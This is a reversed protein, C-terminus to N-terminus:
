IKWIGMGIIQYHKKRTSVFRIISNTTQIFKLERENMHHPSSNLNGTPILFPFSWCCVFFFQPTLPSGTLTSQQFVFATIVWKSISVCVLAVCRNPWHKPQNLESFYRSLSLSLSLRVLCTGISAQFEGTEGWGNSGFPCTDISEILLLYYFFQISLIIISEILIRNMHITSLHEKWLGLKSSWILNFTM